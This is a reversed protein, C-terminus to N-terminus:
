RRAELPNWNWKDVPQITVPEGDELAEFVEDWGETFPV